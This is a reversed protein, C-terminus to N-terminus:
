GMARLELWPNWVDTRFHWLVERREARSGIPIDRTVERYYLAMRAAPRTLNAGYSNTPLLRRNGEGNGDPALGNIPANNGNQDKFKTTPYWFFITKM